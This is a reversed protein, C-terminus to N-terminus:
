CTKLSKFLLLEVLFSVEIWRISIEGSFRITAKQIKVGDKQTVLIIRGNVTEGPFLPRRPDPDFKIKIETVDSGLIGM